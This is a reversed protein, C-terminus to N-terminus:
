INRDSNWRQVQSKWHGDPQRRLVSQLVGGYRYKMVQPEPSPLVKLESLRATAVVTGEGAGRVDVVDMAFEGQGILAQWFVRIQGAGRSVAGNPQMLIANDTYLALIEEIQGHALAANWEAAASEAVQRVSDDAQSQSAGATTVLAFILGLSRKM